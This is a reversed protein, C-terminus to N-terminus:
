QRPKSTLSIETALKGFNRTDIDVNDISKGTSEELAHLTAQIATEAAKIADLEQRSPGPKANKCPGLGCLACTRPYPEGETMLDKNCRNM